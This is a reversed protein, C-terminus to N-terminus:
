DNSLIKSMQDRVAQSGADCLMNKQEPTLNFQVSTIKDPINVMISRKFHKTSIQAVYTARSMTTAVSKFYDCTSEIVTREKLTGDMNENHAVFAIGITEELNDFYTIPYNIFEGGDGYYDGEYLVPTIILPYAISMRVALSIPMLPTNEKNFYVAKQYNINTAIITLGMGIQSFTCNKINTKTSILKEVETEFKIAEFMGYKYYLNTYKSSSDCILEEFNLTFFIEKLQTPTYGVSYLAAIISGCSVASINQIDIINENECMYKELEILAGVHAFGFNGGGSLSLNHIKRM